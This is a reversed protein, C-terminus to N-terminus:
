ILTFSLFRKNPVNCLMSVSLSVSEDRLGHRERLIPTGIALRNHRSEDRIPQNDQSRSPGDGEKVNPNGIFGGRGVIRDENVLYISAKTGGALSFDV